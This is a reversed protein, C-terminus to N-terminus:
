DDDPDDDNRKRRRKRPDRGGGGGAEIQMVPVIAAMIFSGLVEPALAQSMPRSEAEHMLQGYSQARTRGAARLEPADPGIIEQARESTLDSLVTKGPTAFLLDNPATMRAAFHNLYESWKDAHRNCWEVSLVKISLEECRKRDMGDVLEDMRFIGGLPNYVYLQRDYSVVSSKAKFLGKAWTDAPQNHFLSMLRDTALMRHVSNIPAYQEPLIDEVAVRNIAAAMRVEELSHFPIKKTDEVRQNYMLASVIDKPLHYQVPDEAKTDIAYGVNGRGFCVKFGMLQMREAYTQWSCQPGVDRYVRNSLMFFHEANRRYGEERLLPDIQYVDSGNYFTRGKFDIVSYRTHPKGQADVSVASRIEFGLERRLDPLALVEQWSLGKSAYETMLNYLLQKRKYIKPQDVRALRANKRVSVGEKYRKYCREIDEQKIEGVRTRGSYVAYNGKSKKDPKLTLDNRQLLEELNALNPFSWELAEKIIPAASERNDANVKQGFQRNLKNIIGLSRQKEFKDSILSGDKRVRNSVIHVHNNNTDKHFYLLYPQEGYGMEILYQKAAAYLQEKNMEQGKCSVVAHFQRYKVDSRKDAILNLQDLANSPTIVGNLGRLPFNAVELQEAKGLEVKLSNYTVGSFGKAHKLIKAIM